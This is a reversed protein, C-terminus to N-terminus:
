DDVHLEQIKEEPNDAKMLVEGILVADAGLGKLLLVDKLSHIGSEAVKVVDKPIFPLLNKIRELNVQFTHLNRSNIGIIDAGMKLVKKLEKETHVEVLVDMGLNKACAYLKKIQEEHLIGVILLVADAGVARSELIQVEDFIFDKRLIPLNVNKRINEIYSIKGLFFDEETVVSIANAKTNKFIDALELYSFNKRLIGKSPSAQKIEAIFSIKGKRNIAEKFSRIQPAKKILSVFGDRNKKLIEVKRKKTEIINSLIEHM